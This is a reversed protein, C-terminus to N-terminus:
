GGPRKLLSLSRSRQLDSYDNRPYHSTTECIPFSLGRLRNPVLIEKRVIPSQSLVSGNQLVIATSGDGGANHLLDPVAGNWEQPFPEKASEKVPEFVAGCEGM